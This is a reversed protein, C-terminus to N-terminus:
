GGGASLTRRANRRCTRNLSVPSALCTSRSRFPTDGAPHRRCRPSGITRHGAPSRGSSSQSLHQLLLDSPKASTTGPNSRCTSKEKEPDAGSAAGVSVTRRAEDDQQFPSTAGGETVASCNANGTQPATRFNGVSVTQAQACFNKVEWTLKKNKTAVVETEKGTLTCSGAIDRLTLGTETDGSGLTAVLTWAIVAVAGVGVALLTTGRAAM